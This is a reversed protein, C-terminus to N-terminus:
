EGAQALDALQMLLDNTEQLLEDDMHVFGATITAVGCYFDTRCIAKVTDTYKDIWNLQHERHFSMQLGLLRVAEPLDQEEIAAVMRATMDAMFDFEFSLHDDPVHLDPNPELHEDLMYKYVEDRAGQMMLGEKSTFVSEYPCARQEGKTSGASLFTHAYDVALDERTGSTIRRIAKRATKAGEGVPGEVGELQPLGEQALFRIQEESLEKFYLFSFMRYIGERMQSIEKIQSVLAAQQENYM